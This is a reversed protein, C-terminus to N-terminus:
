VNESKTNKRPSSMNMKHTEKKIIEHYLIITITWIIFGIPMFYLITLYFFVQTLNIPDLTETTLPQLFLFTLTMPLVILCIYASIEWKSGKIKRLAISFRM